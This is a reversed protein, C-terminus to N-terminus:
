LPPCFLTALSQDITIQLNDYSMLSSEDCKYTGNGRALVEGDCDIIGGKTSDNTRSGPELIFSKVKADPAPMAGESGWPVNHIWVSIFPGEITRWCMNEMDINPGVYGKEDADTQKGNSSYFPLDQVSEVKQSIKEVYNESGSAPIFHVRGNYKRLQFIRKVAYLDLRAGGMWRWIESEIDIDAVLGWALMLVSFFRTKGQSITAVDLSTKHGRIIAVTANFASCPDGASDLLSKAVGNGTGAPIVGIPMKIAADWDDRQLLGNTVEVLVGDGSVCVVGDYKTLDLGYALEKAHLQYKTEQVTFQIGADELLPQVTDVYVKSASKKGGYPNVLVFLRKPRGLSHLFERLKQFWLHLSDHSSAELVLSKRALGETSSCCLIGASSSSSSKVACKLIIRSGEISVGLVEKELSLCKEHGGEIWRLTGDSNFVLPILTGSLTVRESIIIPYESEGESIEM